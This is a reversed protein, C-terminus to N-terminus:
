QGLLLYLAFYVGLFSALAYGILWESVAPRVVSSYSGSPGLLWSAFASKAQSASVAENLLLVAQQCDPLAAERTFDHGM